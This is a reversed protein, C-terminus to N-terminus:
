TKPRAAWRAVAQPRSGFGLWNILSPWAEARDGRTRRLSKGKKPAEDPRALILTWYVKYKSNPAYAAAIGMKTAGNLLMNARHSSSDRWGSFAEAITHYGAGINEAAVSADYGGHRLREPFSRGLNHDMQNHAAMTRSHDQAIRMLKPDLALPPLGNNTRYGSIMARAANADFPANAQALSQYFSPEGGPPDSDTISCGALTLGAAVPILVRAFPIRM